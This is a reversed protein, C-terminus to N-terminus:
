TFFFRIKITSTDVNKAILLTSKRVETKKEGTSKLGFFWLKGNHEWSEILIQYTTKPSNLLVMWMRCSSKSEIFSTLFPSFFQMSLNRTFFWPAVSQRFLYIQVRDQIIQIFQISNITCMSNSTLINLNLEKYYMLQPSRRITTSIKILIDLVGDAISMSRM